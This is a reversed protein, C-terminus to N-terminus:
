QEPNSIHCVWHKKQSPPSNNGTSITWRKGLVGGLRYRVIETHTNRAVPHAGNQASHGRLQQM